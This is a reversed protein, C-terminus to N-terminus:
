AIRWGTRAAILERVEDNTKCRRIATRHDQWVQVPVVVLGMCEARELAVAKDNTCWGYGDRNRRMVRWRVDYLGLLTFPSGRM